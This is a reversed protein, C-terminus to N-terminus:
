QATNTLPLKSYTSLLSWISKDEYGLRWVAVGGIDKAIMVNLKAMISQADEFWIRYTVGDETWEAYNQCAEENWSTELKKSAILAAQNRMTVYEDTVEAGETKWLITYFPLANVVKHAPVQELTRELGGTVYGISAVSGPDGSGHWHEDYGMIIVYDAVQGQIDLRYYSNFNFPVYNDISLILGDKRCAVSLERLFQVYHTSVASNIQEFDLNIGDLDLNKALSMVNEILRQRKATSSLVAYEDISVDNENAYNFNDLVGWVQLGYRHAKDVYDRSGFSRINGDNDCMSFWTPAIVNMGTTGSVMSDLSQNGGVGGISHWGLSVREPLSLGTYEEPVYDTVPRETVISETGLHKNEVYGIISQSTKVKCWTEMRDLIELTEGEAVDALIASKIGGLVRVATAKLAPAEVREGWQNYIQVCYPFIEFSFNAYQKVYDAAVYVQEGERFCIVYDATVAGAANEYQKEGFRVKTTDTASTFLLLQEGEDAYFGEQFLEQVQHLTFYCRGDRVLAQEELLEDQLVITLYEGQSGFYEGLDMREESYSFRELLYGGVVVVGLIVILILAVIVPIAKKKM